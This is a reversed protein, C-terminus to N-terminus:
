RSRNRRGGPRPGGFRSGGASRNGNGNGGQGNGGPGGRARGRGEGGRFRGRGALPQRMTFDPIPRTEKQGEPRPLTARILPRHVPGEEVVPPAADEVHAPMAEEARLASLGAREAVVEQVNLQFPRDDTADVADPEDDALADASEGPEDDEGRSPTALVPAVEPEPMGALVEKYLAAPSEKKVRRRPAKGGKYAHEADCTTCRTQRVDEEIMAVIAHNTVRRERPCYDDLIDGLRLPRQEM